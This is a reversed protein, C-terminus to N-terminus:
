KRALVAKAMKKVSEKLARHFKPAVAKLAPKASTLARRRNPCIAEVVPMLFTMAPVEGYGNMAVHGAMHKHAPIM